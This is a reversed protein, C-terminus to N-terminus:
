LIWLNLLVMASIRRIYIQHTLIKSLLLFISFFVKIIMDSTLEEKHVSSLGVLPQLVRPLCLLSFRPVLFYLFHFGQSSFNCFTFVKPHSFVFLSFRRILFYLFQFVESSFICFTFIKPHFFVFLSLRLILFYFNYM